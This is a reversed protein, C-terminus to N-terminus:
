SGKGGGKERKPKARNHAENNSNILDVDGATQEKLGKIGLRTAFTNLPKLCSLDNKPYAIAKKRSPDTGGIIMWQVVLKVM